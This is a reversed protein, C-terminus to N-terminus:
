VETGLEESRAAPAGPLATDDAAETSATRPALRMPDRPRGTSKCVRLGSLWADGLSEVRGSELTCAPGRGSRPYPEVGDNGM